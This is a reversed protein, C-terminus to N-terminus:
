KAEGRGTRNVVAFAREDPPQKVIGLRDELVLELGDFAQAFAAAAVALDIERQEGVAQAGLAFLADGDVHGVAVEGRRLALEDDGIRGPWMWYVRLMTVPADVAFRAMMRMSARLPMRSCVCRWENMAESSWM